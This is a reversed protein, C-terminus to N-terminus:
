DAEETEFFGQKPPSAIGTPMNSEPDGEERSQTQTEETNEPLRVKGSLVALNLLKPNARKSCAQVPFCVDAYTQLWKAGTRADKCLSACVQLDEPLFGGHIWQQCLLWIYTGQESASMRNVVPDTLWDNPFFKFWIYGAQDESNFDSQKKKDMRDKRHTTPHGLGSQTPNTTLNDDHNEMIRVTRPPRAATLGGGSNGIMVGCTAPCLKGDLLGFTLLDPAASGM